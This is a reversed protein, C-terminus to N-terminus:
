KRRGKARGGGSNLSDDDDAPTPVPLGDDDDGISTQGDHPDDRNSARQDRASRQGGDGSQTKDTRQLQFKRDQSLNDPLPRDSKAGTERSPKAQERQPQRTTNQSM